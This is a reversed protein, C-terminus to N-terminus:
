SSTVLSINEFKRPTLFTPLGQDRTRDFGVVSSRRGVVSSRRGVVSSRVIHFDRGLDRMLGTMALSVVYLTERKVHVVPPLLNANGLM